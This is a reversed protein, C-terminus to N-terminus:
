NLNEANPFFRSTKATLEAEFKVITKWDELTQQAKGSDPAAIAPKAAAGAPPRRTNLYRYKSELIRLESNSPDAAKIKEILDQAEDLKAFKVADDGTNEVARLAAKAQQVMTKVDAASAGTAMGCLLIGLLAGRSHGTGFWM